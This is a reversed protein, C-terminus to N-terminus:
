IAKTSQAQTSPHYLGLKDEVTYLVSQGTQMASEAVKEATSIPHMAVNAATSAVNEITSIPHMAVNGVTELTNYVVDTIGNSYQQNQQKPTIRYIEMRLNRAQNITSDLLDRYRYIWQRRQDKVSNKSWDDSYSYLDDFSSPDLQDIRSRSKELKQVLKDTVNRAQDDWRLPNVKGIGGTRVQERPKQDFKHQKLDQGMTRKTGFDKDFNLSSDKVKSDGGVFSPYVHRLNLPKKLSEESRVTPKQIDSQLSSPQMGSQFSPQQLSSSQYWLFPSIQQQPIMGQSQIPMQQQIGQQFPSRQQIGSQMPSQQLGSLPLQSQQQIPQQKIPQQQQIGQQSGMEPIGTGKWLNEFTYEHLNGLKNEVTTDCQGDWKFVQPRDGSSGLLYFTFKFQDVSFDGPVQLDYTFIGDSIETMQVSDELDMDGLQPLTGCLYVKESPFQKQPKFLRFHLANTIPSHHRGQLGSQM